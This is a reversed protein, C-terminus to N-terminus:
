CRHVCASLRFGEKTNGASCIEQFSSDRRASRPGGLRDGLHACPAVWISLPRVRVVTDLPFALLFM